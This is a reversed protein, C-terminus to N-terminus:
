VTVLLETWATRIENAENWGDRWELYGHEGREFPNHWEYEGELCADYGAQKAQAANTM